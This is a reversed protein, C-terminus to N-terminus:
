TQRSKTQLAGVIEPYGFFAAIHLPTSGDSSRIETDAGAELLISAAEARGFTAAIILPTSGFADRENLDTGAEAHQRISEADGQLVALHLGVEPAAVPRDKDTAPGSQAVCAAGLLLLVMLCMIVPTRM